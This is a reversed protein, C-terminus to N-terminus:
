QLPRLLSAFALALFTLFALPGSKFKMFMRIIDTNSVFFKRMELCFKTGASIRLPSTGVDKGTNGGTKLIAQAEQIQAICNELKQTLSSPM